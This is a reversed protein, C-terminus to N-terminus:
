RPPRSLYKAYVIITKTRIFEKRMWEMERGLSLLGLRQLVAGGTRDEKNDDIAAEDDWGEHNNVAVQDNLEWGDLIANSLGLPLIVM